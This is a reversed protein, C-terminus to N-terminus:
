WELSGSSTPGLALDSRKIGIDALERDSMMALAAMAARRSRWAVFRRVLNAIARVVRAPAPLDHECVPALTRMIM